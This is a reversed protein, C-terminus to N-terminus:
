FSIGTEDTRVFLRNIISNSLLNFFKVIEGTNEVKLM